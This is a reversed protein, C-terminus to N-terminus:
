ARTEALRLALEEGGPVELARGNADFAFQAALVDFEAYTARAFDAPPQPGLNRKYTCNWADYNRCRLPREDMGYVGCRHNVLHRCRTSVLLSWEHGQVGVAVGPFGLAFRLHDLGSTTTPEPLPFALTECCWAMCGDCPVAAGRRRLPPADAGSRGGGPSAPEEARPEDWDRDHALPQGAFAAALEDWEPVAVIARQDDFRVADVITQLRGADIRLFRGDGSESLAPRYWCTHANYQSCIHPQDPTGHVTCSRDDPGSVPM